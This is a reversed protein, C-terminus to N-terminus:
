GHRCSAHGIRRTLAKMKDAAYEHIADHDRSQFKLVGDVWCGLLSPKRLTVTKRRAALDRAVADRRAHEAAEMGVAYAVDFPNLPSPHMAAAAANLSRTAAAAAVSPTNM